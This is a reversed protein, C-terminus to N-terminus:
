VAELLPPLESDDEPDEDPEPLPEDDPDDDPEEEPEEDPEDEPDDLPSSEPVTVGGLQAGLPSRPHGVAARAAVAPLSLQQM